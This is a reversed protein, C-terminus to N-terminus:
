PCCHVVSTKTSFSCASTCIKLLSLLLLVFCGFLFVLVFCVFFCLLVFLVFLLVAVCILCVFIICCLNRLYFCCLLDCLWFGEFGFRSLSCMGGVSGETTPAIYALGLVNNDFKEYTFLHAM